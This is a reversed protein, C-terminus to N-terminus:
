RKQPQQVSTASHKPSQPNHKWTQTHGDNISISIAAM